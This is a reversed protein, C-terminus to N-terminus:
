SAKASPLKAVLRLSVTLGELQYHPRLFFKASYYGPNGRGAPGDSPLQWPKRAKYGRHLPSPRWRRVPRDLEAALTAHRRSGQLIRDQRARHVEPLSRFPLHRLSLCVRPWPPTQPRTPTMTSHRSTCPSHESSLPLTPNKKYVLPMFGNKALEAERRDSIAIETPCRLDVGGDDTPFTHTPLGEVAGGIRHRSDSLVLRLKQVVPQHQGGHCLSFEGLHIEQRQGTPTRRSTSPKWRTPKPGYPRRALFRPM